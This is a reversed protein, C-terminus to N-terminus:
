GNKAKPQKRKEELGGKREGFLLRELRIEFVIMLVLVSAYFKEL